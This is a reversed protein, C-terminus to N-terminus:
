NKEDQKEAEQVNVSFFLATFSAAFLTLWITDYKDPVLYVGSTGVLSLLTALVIGYPSVQKRKM